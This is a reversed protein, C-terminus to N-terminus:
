VLNKIKSDNKDNTFDSEFYGKDDVKTLGLIKSLEIQDDPHVYEYIHMGIM